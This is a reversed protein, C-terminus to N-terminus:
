LPPLEIMSEIAIGSPIKPYFYTSKPPMIKNALVENMFEEKDWSPMLIAFRAKGSDVSNIATAVDNTYKISSDKEQQNLKLTRTFLYYDVLFTASM